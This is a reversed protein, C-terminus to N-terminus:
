SFIYMSLLQKFKLTMPDKNGLIGFLTLMSKRGIDDRYERNTKVIELFSRFAKEYSEELAFKCGEVYLKDFEDKIEINMDQSFVKLNLLAKVQTYYDDGKVFTNLVAEADDSRNEDLLAKALWYQIKKEKPFQQVLQNLPEIVKSSQGESILIEIDQMAKDLPSILHKMLVERTQAMTKEGAFGDVLQGNSVIKLEPVSTVKFNSILEPNAEVDIKALVFDLEISLQELMASMKQSPESWKAWFDCIVARTMSPEMVDAKFNDLTVHVIKGM